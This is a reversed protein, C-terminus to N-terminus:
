TKEPQCRPCFYASRGAIKRRRIKERCRGCKEGERGYVKLRDQFSGPQGMGDRYDRVSTGRYRIASAIIRRMQQYLRGLEERTLRSVKSEPHIGAAHLIEDAYINGLGAIFNQQLLLPKIKGKRRAFLSIFQEQNIEAPEPGLEALAKIRTEKASPFLMLHGFKRPDRFRLELDSGSLGFILHVHKDVPESRRALYLRGTMKLHLLMTERQDSDVLIMKGRRRVGGVRAGVWRGLAAPSTNKLLGPWRLELRTITRGKLRPELTRRVTEVEPLEPM